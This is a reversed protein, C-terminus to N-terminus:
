ENATLAHYQLRHRRLREEADKVVQKAVLKDALSGGARLKTKARTIAAKLRAAEKAHAIPTM